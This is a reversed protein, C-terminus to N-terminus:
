WIEVCAFGEVFDIAGLRSNLKEKILLYIVKAFYDIKLVDNLFINM